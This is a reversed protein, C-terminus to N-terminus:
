KMICSRRDAALFPRATRVAVVAAAPGSDTEFLGTFLLVVNTFDSISHIFVSLSRNTRIKLTLKLLRGQGVLCKVLVHCECRRVYCYSSSILGSIEAGFLLESVHCVTFKLATHLGYVVTHGSSLREAVAM